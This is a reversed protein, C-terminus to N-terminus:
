LATGFGPNPTGDKRKGVDPANSQTNDGNEMCAIADQLGENEMRAATDQLRENEQTTLARDSDSLLPRFFLRCDCAFNRRIKRSMPCRDSCIYQAVVRWMYALIAGILTGAAIQYVSHDDLQWRSWPVLLLLLAPFGALQEVMAFWCVFGISTIAHGSPMGCSTLCSGDPRPQMIIIKAVVTTLILVWFLLLGFLDAIGRKVLARFHVYLFIVVPLSSLMFALVDLYDVHKHVTFGSFPINLTYGYPCARGEKSWAPLCSKNQFWHMIKTGDRSAM